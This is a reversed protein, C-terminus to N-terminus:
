QPGSLYDFQLLISPPHRFLPILKRGADDRPFNMEMSYSLLHTSGRGEGPRPWTWWRVGNGEAEMRVSLVSWIEIMERLDGEARRIGSSESTMLLQGHRVGLDFMECTESCWADPPEESLSPTRLTHIYNYMHTPPQPPSPFPSLLEISHRSMSKTNTKNSNPESLLLGVSLFCTLLKENKRTKSPSFGHLAPPTFLNAQAFANFVRLLLSWTSRFLRFKSALVCLQQAEGICRGM